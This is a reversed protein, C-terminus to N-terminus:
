PVIEFVVGAGGSGGVVTTGYLNGNGDLILGAVPGSGDSGAFTHLLSYTWQGGADPTLKYIVGCGCGTGGVAAAGYINGAADLTLNGVPTGGEAGSFQHILSEKWPVGGSTPTLKFVVGCDASGCQYIGGQATTGYLNGQSDFSLPGSPGRGDRPFSGFTHLVSEKWGGIAPRLKYATGCGGGIGLTCSLDGGSYTSGYLNGAADFVIGGPAEGGVGRNAGFSYLVTEAWGSASPTLEFVAGLGFGVVGGGAAGFLNGHSDMLLSGSPPGADGKYSGFTYLLNLSWGSSGPTLEFATGVNHKGGNQATGYLNGSADIVLTSAPESGQPDNLMFSHLVTESWTGDSNPSLEFVTGYGYAGGASTTGYLNGAKDMVVSGWVGGGDTGGTFSYLV